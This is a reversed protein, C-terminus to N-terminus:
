FGIEWMSFIGWQAFRHILTEHTKNVVKCEMEPCQRHLDLSVSHLLCFSDLCLKCLRWYFINLKNKWFFLFLLPFILFTHCTNSNKMWIHYLIKDFISFCRHINFHSNYLTKVSCPSIWNNLMIFQIKVHTNLNLPFRYITFM